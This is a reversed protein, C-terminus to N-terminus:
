EQESDGEESAGKSVVVRSHRIVRDRIKYGKMMEQVVIGEDYQDSEVQMMADHLNPDFPKGVAEIEEVGEKKLIAQLQQYILEMGKKLSEYDSNQGASELARQFNDVVELLPTIVREVSSITMNEFQRATRKKYNDFEAALRLYRDEKERLREEYEERLSELTETDEDRTEESDTESLDEDDSRESEGSSIANADKIEVEIRSEDDRQKDKEDEGM